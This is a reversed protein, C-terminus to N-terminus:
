WRKTDNLKRSEFSIPHGNQMLVGGIVYDSADTHLEFAMSFDPLALVPEQSVATKLEEFAEKCREFWECTNGKKLLDTLPAAKRSYGKIFRRYYNVLGLFSRLVTVKTPAEWEMIAKVKLEDMKLKGHGIIHGLFQVEETAFPGYFPGYTSWM